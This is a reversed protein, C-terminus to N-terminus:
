PNGLVAQVDGGRVRVSQRLPDIVLEGLSKGGINLTIHLPRSDSGSSTSRSLPTVQAGRSMSIIEPGKEGVMALGAATAIGGKALLPLRPTSLSWGGVTFGGGPLPGNWDGHFSPFKFHLSNWGRIVGDISAKFGSTLPSFMGKLPGAIRGPLKQFFGAVADTKSKIWSAMDTARTKVFSFAASAGNKITTWHKTILVVAVGVPGALIGLILPWNSKIWGFVSSAAGKILRWAGSWLKQFWDTKTAILVIVAILAIIALTILVVPSAAMAANWLWQAGTALTVAGRWAVVAIQWAKVALAVAVIATALGTIALFLPIMFGSHQSVFNVVATIGNLIQNAIPMIAVGLKIMTAEMTAKLNAFKQATTQTQTKWSDGFTNAGEALEPYKSMLRDYQGVLINVGTGAKKGFVTTLIQGQEKASVGADDLHNKLDTIALKLGGKQMDKALTDQELGLAHLAKKGQKVPEALAQVSMRLATGADAGRINNDGFVALAAGVDTINLGFGKVVPVMGTGFAEALDQMQMDGAGVTKNLAGMAQDMNQVGPIGSAVAATLANTVDVLDAGGVRAGEAAVKTIELAKKSTIGTSKFASEVHYLSEALSDPDEGVKGALSLIGDELPKLQGKSVGAQTNIRIMQQEFSSGMKVAEVGILGAALSVAGAGAVMKGKLGEFGLGAKKVVGSVFDRGILNFVLSTDSM